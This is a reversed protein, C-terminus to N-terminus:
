AGYRGEIRPAHAALHLTTVAKVTVLNRAKSMGDIAERRWTLRSSARPIRCVCCSAFQSHSADKLEMMEDQALLVAEVVYHERGAQHATVESTKTDLIGCM